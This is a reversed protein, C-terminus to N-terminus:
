APQAAKSHLQYASRQSDGDVAPSALAPVPSFRGHDVHRSDSTRRCREKLAERPSVPHGRQSRRHEINASENFHMHVTDPPPSVAIGRQGRISPVDSRAGLLESRHQPGTQHLPALRFPVHRQRRRQGIEAIDVRSPRPLGDVGSQAAPGSERRVEAGRLHLTGPAVSARQVLLARLNGPPCQSGRRDARTPEDVRVQAVDDDAGGDVPERSRRELLRQGRM